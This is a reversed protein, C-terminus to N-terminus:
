CLVRPKRREVYDLVHFFITWCGKSDAFGSQLGATSFPQCPFGAIYLDAAPTAANNRLTLDDYFVKPKVHAVITAKAHRNVDCAFVHEVDINLNSLAMSPAELGSCDTAVAIKRKM